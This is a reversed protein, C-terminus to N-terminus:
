PSVPVHHSAAYQHRFVSHTQSNVFVMGGQMFSFSFSKTALEPGMEVRQRLIHKQENNVGSAHQRITASFACISFVKTFDRHKEATAGDLM